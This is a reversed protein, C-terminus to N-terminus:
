GVTGFSLGLQRAVRDLEELWVGAAQDLVQSLSRLAVNALRGSVVDQQYDFFAEQIIDLGAELEALENAAVAMNHPRLTRKFANFSNRVSQFQGWLKDYGSAFRPANQTANRFWNVQSRLFNLANRQATPTTPTVFPWGTQAGLNGPTLLNAGLCIIVAMVISKNNLPNM